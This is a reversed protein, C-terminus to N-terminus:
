AAPTDPPGDEDGGGDDEAQPAALWPPRLPTLTAGDATLRGGDKGLAELADIRLLALGIKQVSSRLEGVEREGLKIATGADPAEGEIEVPLLQRRRTGRYRMRATMEQGVYCGKDWDIGHLDDFGNEMPLAKDVALDRSGDPLGLCLRTYDFVDAEVEEFGAALLEGLAARPVLARAGLGGYRPDVYCIGGAFPGGRGEFGILASADADTGMLAAVAWDATVDEIEVKSRLRYRKLRDALDTIRAKECDLMLAGDLEAIFFDHLYKGQPTLLAAWVATQATVLNVDNTVINQLFDRADEGVVRLVGRDELVALNMQGMPFM